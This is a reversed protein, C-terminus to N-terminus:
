AKAKGAKKEKRSRKLDYWIPSAIFISSYTGSIVGVMLPLAFMRIDAVGFIFLSLVMFFTTLSTFLSRSLTQGVSKNILAARKEDTNAGEMNERIRDFTVITDNISYGIITLVAAIFTGGVEIRTFAYCMIVMLADHTLALIAAAGFKVDRFRFWIYLLMLILAIIMATIADRTAESSITSSITEATVNEETVSYDNEFMEAMAQRQEVSLTTTKFVVENTGSVTQVQVSSVGTLDRIKPVVENDLDQLSWQENFAVTTSTGGVFDLSLNMAGNGMAKNAGMTICGAALIAVSILYFIKRKEVFKYAKPAKAKGYLKESRLGLDYFLASLARTIFLATFMSVIIGLALTQAFGKVTGTGRLGLVLAAILTTINGDLIASLAKQYGLKMADGVNKGAAIEERIRSFVLVNADVAMGVSLIIGAIGPLTLTINFASLLIVELCCYFMLAISAALGLIRYVILMFVVVLAFGVIAAILSTHIANSGLQAGVVNSRLEELSLKLGGIRITSALNQASELSSMGTIIARGDTIAANVSPVSIFEGDYYIGISEGAEYAKTTADAFKSQGESTFTLSVVPESAGTSSTSQYGAEANAVDDGELVISGDAQLEEITKGNLMYGIGGDETIGFTYNENGDSDTQAIFYLNGPQGLQELIENADTAGPIEISIRDSGEQYVHAETSYQEVRKQLKYITDDMDKQSPREEGTVGYTISVGGALDLGLDIQHISGSDQVGFYSVYGLGCLVALMLILLLFAKIKKKM